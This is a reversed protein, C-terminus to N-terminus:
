ADAGEAGLGGSKESEGGLDGGLIHVVRIAAGLLYPQSVGGDAKEVSPWLGHFDLARHGRMDELGQAVQTPRVYAVRFYGSQAPEEPGLVARVQLSAQFVGCAPHAWHKFLKNVLLRALPCFQRRMRM